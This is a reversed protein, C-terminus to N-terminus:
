ETEDFPSLEFIGLLRSAHLANVSVFFKRIFSILWYRAILLGVAILLGDMLLWDPLLWLLFAASLNVLSISSSALWPPSVRIAVLVALGLDALRTAAAELGLLIQILM